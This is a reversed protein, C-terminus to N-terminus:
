EIAKQEKREYGSRKKKIDENAIFWYGVLSVLSHELPNNKRKQAVKRKQTM